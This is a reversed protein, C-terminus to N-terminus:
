HILFIVTHRYSLKAPFNQLTKMLLLVFLDSVIMRTDWVLGLNNQILKITKFQLMKIPALDAEPIINKLAGCNPFFKTLPFGKSILLPIIEKM